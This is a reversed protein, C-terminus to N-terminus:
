APEGEQSPDDTTPDIADAPDIPDPQRVADAFARRADLERGVLRYADGRVFALAASRDDVVLDLVAPALAPRVRLVMGLHLAADAARGDQLAERGLDLEDEPVPLEPMVLQDDDADADAPGPEGPAGDMTDWLGIPDIDPSSPQDDDAPDADTPQDRAPGVAPVDFMTAASPPAALPDAPWVAARPMGAFVGDLRDGAEAMARRAFRRAETPRGRAMAAEAAVVLAVLPGDDGDGLLAMAAEGAGAVDGTRWRAEALDVLGDDDLEDRGALTELGARALALSGLRLHLGALVLDASRTPRDIPTETAM